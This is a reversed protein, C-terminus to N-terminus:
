RLVALHTPEIRAFVDEGVAFRGSSQATLEAGGPLTLRYKISAGLYEAYGVRAPFENPGEDATRALAIREPRVMVRATGPQPMDALTLRLGNAGHFAGDEGILGELINVNGVFGAVFESQPQEYIQEPTGVRLVRGRDMIAIRDSMSLAEEQDHTVYLTTIGLRLQLRKIEGRMDGRLKRDLNSLPEDMLLVPPDLALARALAVRQQQGGSLERPYRREFGRLGVTALV